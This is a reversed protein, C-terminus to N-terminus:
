SPAGASGPATTVLDDDTLRYRCTLTRGAHGPATVIVLHIVGPEAPRAVIDEGGIGEAMARERFSERPVVDLRDADLHIVVVIDPHKSSAYAHASRIEDRWDDITARSVTRCEDPTLPRAEPEPRPPNGRPNSKSM